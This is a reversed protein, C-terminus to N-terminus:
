VDSLQMEIKRSCRPLWVMYYILDKAETAGAAKRSHVIQAAMRFLMNTKTPLATVIPRVWPICGLVGPMGAGREVMHRIGQKDVGDEIFNFAGGYAFDGMFDFSMFSAWEAMDIRQGTRGSLAKVLQDTRKRLMPEYSKLASPTFGRDWIRRRKSHEIPDVIGM